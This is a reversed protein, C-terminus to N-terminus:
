LRAVEQYAAAQSVALDFVWHEDSACAIEVDARLQGYRNGYVEQIAFFKQEREFEAFVDSSISLKNDAEGRSERTTYGPLRRWNYSENLIAILTTKGVGSPGLLLHLM